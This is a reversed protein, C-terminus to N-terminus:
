RNLAIELRDFCDLSRADPEAPRRHASWEVATGDRTEVGVEHV